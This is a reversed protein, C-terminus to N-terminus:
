GGLISAIMRNQIEVHSGITIHFYSGVYVNRAGVMVGPSGCSNSYYNIAPVGKAVRPFTCLPDLGVVHATIGRAKLWNAAQVAGWAGMSHGYFVIRDRPHQSADQAFAQWSEWGGVQVVARGQLRAGVQDMSNSLLLGGLGRMGYARTAANCEFPSTLIVSAAIAFAAGSRRLSKM